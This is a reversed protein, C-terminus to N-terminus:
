DAYIKRRSCFSKSIPSLGARYFEDGFEPNQFDFRMGADWGSRQNGHAPFGGAPKLMKALHLLNWTMFTTNRNTFKMTWASVHVMRWFTATTTGQVRKGSGGPTM